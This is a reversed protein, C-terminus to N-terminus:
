SMALFNARDGQFEDVQEVLWPVRKYVTRVNDPTCKVPGDELEIGGWALTVAVRTAMAEEDLMNIDINNSRQRRLKRRIEAQRKKAIQSDPGALKIWAGELPESTIPNRVQMVAGEDSGKITDFDTLKMATM